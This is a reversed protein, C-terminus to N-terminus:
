TAPATGKCSASSEKAFGDADTYGFTFNVTYAGGAVFTHNPAVTLVFDAQVEDNAPISSYSKTETLDGTATILVTTLNEGTMNTFIISFIDGTATGSLNQKKIPLKSAGTCGEAGIQTPNILFVLAAIAIVIVILAWGYTM